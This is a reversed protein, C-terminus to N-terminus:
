KRIRITYRLTVESESDSITATDGDVGYDFPLGTAPNDPVPTDSVDELKAPLKGGNAAAFSRIAEVATMAALQRDTSALTWAARHFTPLVDLFFNKPQAELLKKAYADYAATRPLLIQYPLNALKYM